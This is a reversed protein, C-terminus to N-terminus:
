ARMVFLLIFAISCENHGPVTSRLVMLPEITAFIATYHKAHVSMIISRKSLMATLLLATESTHVIRDNFKFQVIICQSVCHKSIGFIKTRTQLRSVITATIQADNTRRALSDSQRRVVHWHLTEPQLLLSAQHKICQIDANRKTKQQVTESCGLM